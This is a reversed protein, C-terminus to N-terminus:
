GSGGPLGLDVIPVGILVSHLQTMVGCLAAGALISLVDHGTRVDHSPRIGNAIGFAIHVAAYIMMGGFLILGAVDGNAFLHGTGWLMVAIALPFRLMQRLRGRFLFIGLCLFALLVLLFTVYRGFRPPDYAPVFHSLRWGVIIIALALLLLLGFVPRYYSGLRTGM